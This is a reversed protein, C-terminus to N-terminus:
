QHWFETHYECEISPSNIHLPSESPVNPHASNSEDPYSAPTMQYVQNLSPVTHSFATMDYFTCISNLIIKCVDQRPSNCMTSALLVSHGTNGRICHRKLRTEETFDVVIDKSEHFDVVFGVAEYYIDVIGGLWNLGQPGCCLLVEGEVRVCNMGVTCNFPDGVRRTSWTMIASCIPIWCTMEPRIEFNSIQSEPSSLPVLTIEIVQISLTSKKVFSPTICRNM